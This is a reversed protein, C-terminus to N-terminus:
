MLTQGDEVILEDVKMIEKLANLKQQTTCKSSLQRFNHVFKVIKEIKNIVIVYRDTFDSAFELFQGGKVRMKNLQTLLKLNNGKTMM